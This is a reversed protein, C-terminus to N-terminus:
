RAISRWNFKKAKNSKVFEKLAEQSIRKVGGIELCQLGDLIWNTVTRVSVRYLNAIEQKTYYDTNQREIKESGILYNQKIHFSLSLVHNHLLAILNDLDQIAIKKDAKRKLHHLVYEDFGPLTLRRPLNLLEEIKNVESASM